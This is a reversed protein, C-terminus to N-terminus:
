ERILELILAPEVVQSPYSEMIMTNQSSNIAILDM